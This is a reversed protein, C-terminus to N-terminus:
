PSGPRDLFETKLNEYARSEPNYKMYIVVPVVRGVGEAEGVAIVYSPGPPLDRGHLVILRGAATTREVQRVQDSGFLRFAPQEIRYGKSEPHDRLFQVAADLAEAQSTPLRPLGLVGRTTDAPPVPTLHPGTVWLQSGALPGDIVEVLRAHLGLDHISVRTGDELHTCRGQRELEGIDPVNGILLIESDEQSVCGLAADDGYDRVVAESGVDLAPAPRPVRTPNLYEFLALLGFGFLLLATWWLNATNSPNEDSLSTWWQDVSDDPGENSM